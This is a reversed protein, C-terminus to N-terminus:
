EHCVIEFNNGAPDRMFAAFYREHYEPWERPAHLIPLGLGVALGHVREVVERSPATFAVHSQRGDPDAAKSFWIQVSEGPRGYGLISDSDVIRQGGIPEVIRDYCAGVSELDDVQIVVHDLM